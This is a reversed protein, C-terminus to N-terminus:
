SNGRTLAFGTNLGVAWDQLLGAHITKQYSAEEAENRLGKVAAATTEVPGTKTSVEIKGDSASVPGAINRGDQLQLHLTGTSQIGEVANWKLEIEGAYDTKLVLTKGDSKVITGSLRDG